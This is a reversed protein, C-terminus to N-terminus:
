FGRSLWDFIRMMLFYALHGPHVLDFIGFISFFDILLMRVGNLVELLGIETMTYADVVGQDPISEDDTV